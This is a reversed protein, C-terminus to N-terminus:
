TSQQFPRISRGSSHQCRVAKIRFKWSGGEAIDRIVMCATSDEEMQM